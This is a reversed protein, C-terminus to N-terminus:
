SDAAIKSPDARIGDKGVLQGLFRVTEKSFECKEANLTVNAEQLRVLVAELREDHEAQNAGYVIIDDMRCEVGPLGELM